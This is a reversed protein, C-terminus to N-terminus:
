GQVRGRKTAVAMYGPLSMEFLGVTAAVKLLSLLTRKGPSIAFYLNDLYYRQMRRDGLPFLMECRRFTPKPWYFRLEGFGLHRLRRRLLAPPSLLAPRAVELYLSGGARVSLALEPLDHRHPSLRGESRLVAVLDYPERGPPGSHRITLNGVGEQRARAMLFSGEVPGCLVEVFTCTQALAIPVPSLAGGVCLARGSPMHPLIFRWDGSREDSVYSFLGPENKLVARAAHRWNGREAETALRMIM